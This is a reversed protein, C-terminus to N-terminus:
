SAAARRAHISSVGLERREIMQSNSEPVSQKIQLQRKTPYSSLRPFRGCLAPPSDYSQGYPNTVTKRKLPVRALRCMRESIEAPNARYLSPIIM